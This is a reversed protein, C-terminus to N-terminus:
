CAFGPRGGSAHARPRQYHEHFHRTNPHCPNTTLLGLIAYTASTNEPPRLFPHGESSNMALLLPNSLHFPGAAAKGEFESTFPTVTASTTVPEKQTFKNTQARISRRWTNMLETKLKPFRHSCHPQSFNWSSRVRSIRHKDVALKASKLM